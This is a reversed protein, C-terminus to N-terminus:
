LCRTNVVKSGSRFPHCFPFPVNSVLVFCELRFRFMRPFFLVNPTPKIRFNLRKFAGLIILIRQEKQWLHIICMRTFYFYSHLFLVKTVINEQLFTCLYVVIRSFYRKRSLEKFFLSFIFIRPSYLICPIFSSIRRFTINELYLM